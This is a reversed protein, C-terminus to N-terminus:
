NSTDSNFARNIPIAIERVDTPMFHADFKWNLGLAHLQEVLRRCNRRKYGEALKYGTPIHTVVFYSSSLTYDDAGSVLGGHVALDGLVLAEVQTRDNPDRSNTAVGIMQRKFKAM